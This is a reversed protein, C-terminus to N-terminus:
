RSDFGPALVNGPRDIIDFGGDLERTGVGRPEADIRVADPQHAIGGASM